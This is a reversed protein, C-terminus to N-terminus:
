GVKWWRRAGKAWNRKSKECAMLLQERRRHLFIWCGSISFLLCDACMRVGRWPFFDVWSFIRNKM